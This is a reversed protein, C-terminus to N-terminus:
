EDLKSEEQLYMKEIQNMERLFEDCAIEGQISEAMSCMSGDEYYGRTGTISKKLEDWMQKYIGDNKM